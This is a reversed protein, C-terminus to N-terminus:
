GNILFAFLNDFSEKKSFAIGLIISNEISIHRFAYGKHFLEYGIRFNSKPKEFIGPLGSTRLKTM